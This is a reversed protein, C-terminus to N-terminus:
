PNRSGSKRRTRTARGEPCRRSLGAAPAPLSPSVSTASRQKKRAQEELARSPDLFQLSTSESAGIHPNSATSDVSACTPGFCSHCERLRLMKSDFTNHIVNASAGFVNCVHSFSFKAAFCPSKRNILIQETKLLEIFRTGIRVYLWFFYLSEGLSPLVEIVRPYFDSCQSCRGANEGAPDHGPQDACYGQPLFRFM